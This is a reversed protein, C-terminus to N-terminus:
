KKATPALYEKDGVKVSELRATGKRGVNVKLLIRPASTAADWRTRQMFDKKDQESFYFEEIGYELVGKRMVGNMRLTKSDLKEARPSGAELLLDPRVSEKNLDTMTAVVKTGELNVPSGVGETKFAAPRCFESWFRLSNGTLHSYPANREAEICVTAVIKDGVVHPWALWVLFGFQFVFIAIWCWIKRM